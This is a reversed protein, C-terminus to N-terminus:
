RDMGVFQQYARLLRRDRLLHVAGFREITAANQGNKLVALLQGGAGFAFFAGRYGLTDPVVGVGVLARGEIRLPQQEAMADMFQTHRKGLLRKLAPGLARAAGPDRLRQGALQKLQPWLLAHRATGDAVQDVIAEGTAEPITLSLALALAASSLVACRSSPTSRM